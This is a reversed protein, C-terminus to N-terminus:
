THGFSKEEILVANSGMANAVAQAGIFPTIPDAQNGILLVPNKLTTNFPGMYREVARVPWFPCYYGQYWVGGFMPSVNQTVNVIQDFVNKMTVNPNGDVSDGCLIVINSRSMSSDIGVRPELHSGTGVNRKTMSSSPSSSNLNSPPYVFSGNTFDSWASLLGGIIENLTTQLSEDAGGGYAANFLAVRVIGSTVQNDTTFLDVEQPNAQSIDHISTLASHLYAVVDAGSWGERTLNCVSPGAQACANALAGFVEDSNEWNDATTRFPEKESMDLVNVVGDLIIRGVRGPFLNAFYAGLLSGYSFGWYNVPAGPTDFADALAALDRATAVTGAYKVLDGYGDVLSQSFQRYKQDMFDANAYLDNIDTQNTFNGTYDIGTIEVTNNWYLFFDTISSHIEEFNGPFSLGVGRPDWTIVDFQDGIANVFQAGSIVLEVLAPDGPGGPNIFIVGQKEGTANLKAVALQANGVSANNWDLPIQFRYCTINSPVM